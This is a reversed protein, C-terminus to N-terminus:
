KMGARQLGLGRLYIDPFHYRVPDTMKRQNLELEKNAAKAFIDIMSRPVIIGQTDALRNENIM